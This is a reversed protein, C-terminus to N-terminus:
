APSASIRDLAHVPADAGDMLHKIAGMVLRHRNITSQGEFAPAVIQITYHGGGGQVILQQIDAINDRLSKEIAEIIQQSM